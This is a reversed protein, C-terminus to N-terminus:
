REMKLYMERGVAGLLSNMARIYWGMHMNHVKEYQKPDMQAEEMQQQKQASIVVANTVLVM